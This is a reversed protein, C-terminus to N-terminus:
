STRPDSPQPDPPEEAALAGADSASEQIDRLKDAAERLQRLWERRDRAFSQIAWSVAQSRNRAIGGRILTDLLDREPRALRTMVPVRQSSFYGTVQGCRVGWALTLGTLRELEQSLAMRQPRSEERHQRIRRHAEEEAVQGEVPIRGLILLEGDSISAGVPEPYLDKLHQNLWERLQQRNM